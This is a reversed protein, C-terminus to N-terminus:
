TDHQNCIDKGNQQCLICEEIDHSESDLIIERKPSLSKYKKELYNVVLSKSYKLKKILDKM